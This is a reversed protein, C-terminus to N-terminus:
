TANSVRATEWRGASRQSQRKCGRLEQIKKFNRSVIHDRFVDNLLLEQTLKGDKETLFLNDEFEEVEDIGNM